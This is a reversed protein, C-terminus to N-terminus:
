TLQDSSDEASTANKKIYTILTKTVGRIRHEVNEEEEPKRRMPLMGDGGADVRTDPWIPQQTSKTANTVSRPQQHTSGPRKPRNQTKRVCTFKIPAKLKKRKTM